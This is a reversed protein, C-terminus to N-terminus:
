AAPKAPKPESRLSSLATQAAYLLRNSQQVEIAEMLVGQAVCAIFDRINERGLLSPMAYRFAKAAVKAAQSDMKGKQLETRYASDWAECCRTVVPSKPPSAPNPAVSAPATEPQTEVSM